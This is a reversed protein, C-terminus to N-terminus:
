KVITLSGVVEKPLKGDMYTFKYFYTGNPLGMGDFRNNYCKFSFLVDGRPSFIILTNEPYHELNKIHFYDNIGDGNPTIVNPIQPKPTEVVAEEDIIAKEKIIEIPSAKIFNDEAIEIEEICINSPLELEMTEEAKIEFLESNIITEKNQTTTKNDRKIPEIVLTKNDSEEVTTEIIAIDTTEIHTEQSAERPKNFYYISATAIGAVGLVVGSVKAFSALKSTKAKAMSPRSGASLDLESSIKDWLDSPAKSEYDRLKDRFLKDINKM